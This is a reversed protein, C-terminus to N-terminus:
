LFEIHDKMSHVDLASQLVQLAGILDSIGQKREPCWAIGAHSIGAQHLVLFDSDFTVLVRKMQGVVKLLSDDATGCLEADQATLVDFGRLQLGRSVPLPIHEDM